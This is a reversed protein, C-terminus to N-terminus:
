VHFNALLECPGSLSFLLCMPRRPSANRVVVFELADFGFRGPRDIPQVLQLLVRPEVGHPDLMWKELILKWFVVWELSIQSVKAFGLLAAIHYFLFKQSRPGLRM